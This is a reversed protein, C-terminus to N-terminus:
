IFLCGNHHTQWGMKNNYKMNVISCKFVQIFRGVTKISQGM